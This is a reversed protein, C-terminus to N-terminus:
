RRPLELYLQAAAAVIRRVVVQQPESERWVRITIADGRDLTSCYGFLGDPGARGRAAIVEAPAGLADGLEWRADAVPTRDPNVVHVTIWLTRADAMCAQRKFEQVPPTVLTRLVTSGRQAVFALHADLAIGLAALGSDIVIARYPGPVLDRIEVYGTSDPSGIYDTEALRIVVASMPEGTPTVVKARLAGLAATWSRGDPWSAHAVEGGFERGEYWTRLTSSGRASYEAEQRAGVIRISWQDLLVIGNPMERFTVRGGSEPTGARQLGVFRFEIERVARALTDIWLAGEVDVRGRRSDAPTFGVGMQHPRGRGAGQIHFCYGAAFGDDLLVDADPAFFTQSGASDRMFGQRVFNAADQAAFFSATRKAGSDIRVRQKLVRDSSGDMTRDFGLLKLAAPNSERAVVIALLGARAQDMLALAAARDSRRPCSARGAVHVPELLTPIVVLTIVFPEGLASPGPVPVERPRFGIRVVRVTRSGAALAIRYQGAENTINRGLTAGASDLLLLVAGQVPARSASDLVSGRLEQAPATGAAGALAAACAAALMIRRASTM